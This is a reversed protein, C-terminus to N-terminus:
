AACQWGVVRFTRRLEGSHVVSDWVELTCAIRGILMQAAVREFEGQGPVLCEFVHGQIGLDSVASGDRCAGCLQVMRTGSDPRNVVGEVVVTGVMKPDSPPVDPVDLPEPSAARQQIWILCQRGMRVLAARREDLESVPGLWEPRSGPAADGFVIERQRTWGHAEDRLALLASNLSAASDATVATVARKGNGGRLLLVVGIRDPQTGPLVGTVVSACTSAQLDRAKAFDAWLTRLLKSASRLRLATREFDGYTDSGARVFAGGVLIALVPTWGAEALTQLDDRKM